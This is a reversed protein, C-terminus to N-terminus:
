WIRVLIRCQLSLHAGEAVLQQHAVSRGDPRSGALEKRACFRSFERGGEIPWVRPSCSTWTGSRTRVRRVGESPLTGTSSFRSIVTRAGTHGKRLTGRPYFSTGVARVAFRSSGRSKCRRLYSLRERQLCSLSYIATCSGALCRWLPFLSPQFSLLSSSAGISGAGRRKMNGSRSKQCAM